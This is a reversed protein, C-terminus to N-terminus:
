PIQIKQFLPNGVYPINSGWCSAVNPQSSVLTINAQDYSILIVSGHM